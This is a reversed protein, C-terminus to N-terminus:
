QGGNTGGKRSVYLEIYDGNRYHRYIAFTEGEVEVEREGNYNAHFTVIMFQPNLGDRGGNHFEAGSVSRIKCFVQRKTPEKRWVGTDDQERNESILYCIDDFM